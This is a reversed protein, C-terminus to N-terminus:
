KSKEKTDAPAKEENSGKMGPGQHDKMWHKMMPRGQEMGEEGGRADPDVCRDMGMRGGMGGNWPCSASYHCTSPNSHCCVAQCALCLPGALSVVLIIWAVVKGLTKTFGSQKDALTLIWYGVALSILYAVIRHTLM